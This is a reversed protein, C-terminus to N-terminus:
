EAELRLLIPHLPNLRQLVRAKSFAPRFQRCRHLWAAHLSQVWHVGGPPCVVGHTNLVDHDFEEIRQRSNQYYSRGRLFPPWRLTPVFHYQVPATPDVEWEAAFVHTDHGRLALFRACEFMIREVGGRRHCGPFALAVKM